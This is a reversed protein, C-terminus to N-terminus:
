CNWISKSSHEARMTDNRTRSTASSLPSNPIPIPFLASYRKGNSPHSQFQRDATSSRFRDRCTPVASWSRASTVANAAERLTKSHPLGRGSKARARWLSRCDWDRGWEFRANVWRRKNIFASSGSKIDQVLDSLAMTPRLGILLHFHDPMNNIAILKQSQATVIGTMYKQLEDKHESRILNERAHVAFVVHIYIQSYTNAM